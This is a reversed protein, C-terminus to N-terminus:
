FGLSKLSIFFGVKVGKIIENSVNIIKGYIMYTNRDCTKFIAGRSIFSKPDVSCEFRIRKKRIYQPTIM